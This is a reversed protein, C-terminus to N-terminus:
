VLVEVEGTVTGEIHGTEGNRSHGNATGALHGNVLGDVMGATANVIHGTFIPPLITLYVFHEEIGYGDGGVTAYGSRGLATNRRGTGVCSLIRSM